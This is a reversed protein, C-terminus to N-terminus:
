QFEICTDQGRTDDRGMRRMMVNRSYNVQTPVPFTSDRHPKVAHHRHPCCFKEHPAAGRLHIPLNDVRDRLQGVLNRAHGPLIEM